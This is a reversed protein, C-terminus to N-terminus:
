PAQFLKQTPGFPRPLTSEHFAPPNERDIMAGLPDTKGQAILEPPRGLGQLCEIPPIGLGIDPMDLLQHTLVLDAQHEDAQRKPQVAFATRCGLQDLFKDLLEFRGQRNRHHGPVFPHRGTRRLIEQNGGIDSTPLPFANDIPDGCGNQELTVERTQLLRRRALLLPHAIGM